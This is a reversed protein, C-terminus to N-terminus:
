RPPSRSTPCGAILRLVTQERHSLLLRLRPAGAAAIGGLSRPASPELCAQALDAVQDVSTAPAEAVVARYAAEGM